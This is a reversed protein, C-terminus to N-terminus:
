RCINGYSALLGRSKLVPIFSRAACTARYKVIKRKLAYDPYAYFTETDYRGLCSPLVSAPRWEQLIGIATYGSAQSVAHHRQVDVSHGMVMTERLANMISRPRFEEVLKSGFRFFSPARVNCDVLGIGTLIAAPTVMPLCHRKIDPYVLTGATSEAKVAIM